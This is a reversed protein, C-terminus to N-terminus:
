VGGCSGVGCGAALLLDPKANRGFGASGEREILLQYGLPGLAQQYFAKSGELDSVGLGVHDIV